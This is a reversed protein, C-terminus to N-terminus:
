SRNIERDSFVIKNKSIVESNFTVKAWDHKFFYIEVSLAQTGRTRMEEGFYITLM